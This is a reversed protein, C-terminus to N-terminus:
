LRIDLGGPMDRRRTPAVPAPEAAHALTRWDAPPREDRRPAGEGAAFDLSVDGYGAAALEEALTDAHRRLFDQTEPRQATVTAQVGGDTTTLHIHVRGLEPPDLRIEVRSDDSASVAVALQTCLTHPDAHALHLAAGHLPAAHTTPPPAGAPLLPAPPLAASADVAAAPAAPEITPAAPAVVNPAFAAAPVPDVPPAAAAPRSTDLKGVPAEASTVAPPGVPADHVPTARAVTPPGAPVDRALPASAVVPPDAPGGHTPAANALVPPEAPAEPAPAANAVAPPAPRDAKHTPISGSEAGAGRVGDLEAPGPAQVFTAAEPTPTAPTATEAGPQAPVPAAPLAFEAPAPTAVSRPAPTPVAAVPVAAPAAIAAPDPASEDDAGANVEALLAEFADTSAADADLAGEPRSPPRRPAAPAPELVIM